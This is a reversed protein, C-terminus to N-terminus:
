PSAANDNGSVKAIELRGHSDFLAILEDPLAAGYTPVLGRIKLGGCDVVLSSPTGIAMVDARNLYSRYTWKGALSNDWSTPAAAPLAPMLPPKTQAVSLSPPMLLFLVLLWVAKAM